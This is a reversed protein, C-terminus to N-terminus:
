LLLSPARELGLANAVKRLRGEDSLSCLTAAVQEKVSVVNQFRTDNKFIHPYLEVCLIHFKERTMRFNERRKEGCIKKIRLKGM